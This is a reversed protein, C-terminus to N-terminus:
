NERAYLDYNTTCGTSCHAIGIVAPATNLRFIAVVVYRADPENTRPDIARNAAASHATAVKTYTVLNLFPGLITCGDLM